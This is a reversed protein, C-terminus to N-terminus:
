CKLEREIVRAPVGFAMTRDPLNGRVLAGAGVVAGRGIQIGQLITAGAGIFSFDGVSVNGCVTVGPALHVNRGIECDHDVGTRTNVISNEAIRTGPQLVCGAFIQVGQEMAVERSVVASPHVLTAFSFGAARGREYVDARRQPNAVNGVGNVLEIEKGAYEALVDDNGLVQIGYVLTGPDKDPTTLGVIRRGLLQVVDV